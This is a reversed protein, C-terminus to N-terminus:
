PSGGGVARRFADVSSRGRSAVVTRASDGAADYVRIVVQDGIPGGNPEGYDFENPEAFCIPFKSASPVANPDILSGEM